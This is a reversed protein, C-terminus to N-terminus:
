GTIWQCNNPEYNGDNEIRDITLNNVYGNTLAWDRFNAYSNLWENCVKIGRGGYYKYSISNPNFCREKMSRWVWYLRTKKGRRADGHTRHSIGIQAVMEKQLCGCSRTLGQRLSNSRVNTIKGCDCQCKWIVAGQNRKKTMCIIVLRGFRQGSLDVLKGM